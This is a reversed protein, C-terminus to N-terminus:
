ASAGERHRRARLTLAVGIGLSGLGLVALGAAGLTTGNMPLTHAHAEPTDPVTLTTELLDADQGATLTIVMAHEGPQQLTKLIDADDVRYAEQDPDYRATTQRDGLEVEVQADLVAENTDFRNVYLVLADHTLRAVLEFAETATEARPSAPVASDAPHPADGHPEDGHAFATAAALSFALAAMWYTYRRPNM